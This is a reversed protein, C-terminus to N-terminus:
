IKGNIYRMLYEIFIDIEEKKVLECLSIRFSEFARKKDNYLVMISKSPTNKISCASKQSVCIDNDTLYNVIDKSKIGDISINVIYPNNFSNIKIRKDVLKTLLYENIIKTKKFNAEKNNIAIELSKYISAIIGLPTSGSRYISQSLGGYIIPTLITSKKKVLVGSGTIGGFKHPTFSFLELSNYNFEIKGMGQTADILHHTNPYNILVKRIEDINEILGTESEVLTTIVLIVQKNLKEKLDNIDIGNKTSKIFEIDYGITKLYGLTANISNHEFESVLIKNGFGKYSEVIGRIALNNAETASSTYVCEFTEDLQLLKKIKLDYETYKNKSALGANHTSNANGIYELETKVFEDLVEKKAPYNAAYDLYIM